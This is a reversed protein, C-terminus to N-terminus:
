KSAEPRLLKVSERIQRLDKEASADGPAAILTLSFVRGDIRTFV